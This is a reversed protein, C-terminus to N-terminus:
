YIASLALSHAPIRQNETGGQIERGKVVQNKYAAPSAPPFRAVVSAESVDEFTGFAVFHVVMFFSQTSMYPLLAAHLRFQLTRMTRVPCPPRVDELGVDLAM